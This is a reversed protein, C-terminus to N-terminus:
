HEITVKDGLHAMKKLYEVEFFPTVKFDADSFNDNSM